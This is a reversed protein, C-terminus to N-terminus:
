VSKVRLRLPFISSVLPLAPHPAHNPASATSREFRGLEGAESVEFQHCLIVAKLILHQEIAQPFIQKRSM